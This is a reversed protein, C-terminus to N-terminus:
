EKGLMRRIVPDEADTIYKGEFALNVLEPFSSEPWPPAEKLGEARSWHYCSAGRPCFLQVWEAEAMKCVRMATASWEDVQNAKRPQPLKLPWLFLGVDRGFCLTLRGPFLKIDAAKTNVLGQLLKLAAGAALYHGRDEGNKIELMWIAKWQEPHARFFGIGSAKRVVVTRESDEIFQQEYDDALALDDLNIPGPSAPPPPAAQSDGASADPTPCPDADPNEAPPVNAGFDFEAEARHDDSSTTDSSPISRKSGM